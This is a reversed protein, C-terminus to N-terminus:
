KDDRPWTRVGTRSCVSFETKQELAEMAYDREAAKMEEIQKQKQQEPTM